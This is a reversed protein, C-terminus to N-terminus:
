EVQCKKFEEITNQAWEIANVIMVMQKGSVKALEVNAYGCSLNNLHVIDEPKLIFQPKKKEIKKQPHKKPKSPVSTGGKVEAKRQQPM